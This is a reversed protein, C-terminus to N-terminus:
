PFGLRGRLPACEERREVVFGDDEGAYTSAGTGAPHAEGGGHRGDCVYSEGGGGEAMVNLRFDANQDELVRSPGGNTPALVHAVNHPLGELDRTLPLYNLDM